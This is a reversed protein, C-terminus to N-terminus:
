STVQKFAGTLPFAYADVARQFHIETIIRNCVSKDCTQQIDDKVAEAPQYVNEVCRFFSLSHRKEARIEVAHTRRINVPQCLPEPTDVEPRYSILQSLIVKHYAATFVRHRAPGPKASM